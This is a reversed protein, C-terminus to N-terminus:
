FVLKGQKVLQRMRSMRGALDLRMQGAPKNRERAALRAEVDDMDIFPRLSVLAKAFNSTEDLLYRIDGADDSNIHLVPTAGPPDPRRAFAGRVRGEEWQRKERDVKYDGWEAAILSPFGDPVSAGHNFEVQVKYWVMKTKGSQLARFPPAEVALFPTNVRPGSAPVLNSGKAPGGLRDPLLHMRVWYNSSNNNLKHAKIHDWGIPQHDAALRAEEGKVSKNLFKAKFNGGLVSDAFPPIEPNPLPPDADPGNLSDIGQVTVGATVGGSPNLTAVVEFGPSGVKELETLRYWARLARLVRNDAHEEVGRRLLRVLKPRIRAIIRELRQRKAEPSNERKRREDRQQKRRLHHKRYWDRLHDRRRRYADRLRHAGNTLARGLKSDRLKRGLARAAQRIRTTAAEVTQRAKTLVRGVPSKPRQPRTTKPRDTKPHDTKPRTTDHHNTPEARRLTHRAPGTRTPRAPTTAPRRRLAGAAKRMTARAKNVA